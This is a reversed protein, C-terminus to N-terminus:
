LAPIYGPQIKASLSMVIFGVLRQERQWIDVLTSFGGVQIFVM